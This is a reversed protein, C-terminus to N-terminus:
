NELDEVRKTLAQIQASQEKIAEVLLGVARAYRLALFEGSDDVLEPLVPAVDQAILGTHKEGTDKRTYTVGRLSQVKSVADPILKINEKLREDSSDTLAGTITLNGSSDLIFEDSGANNYNIRFTDDTHNYLAYYNAQDDSTYIKLQPGNLNFSDSGQFRAM